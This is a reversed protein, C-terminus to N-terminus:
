LTLTAVPRQSLNEALTRIGAAYRSDPQLLVLPKGANLAMLCGEGSSPVIGAVECRLRDRLDRPRLCNALAARNVVVLGVSAPNVGWQELLTLAMQAYEACLPDPELVLAIFDSVELIGRHAEEVHSSLDVLTLEALETFTDLLRETQQLQGAQGVAGTGFLVQFGFPLMTLKKELIRSDLNETGMGLLEALGATRSRKLQLAFGWSPLMEAAIVKRGQQGLAAAANLVTTTTGVGGKVGFFTIVRGLQGQRRTTALLRRIHRHREVTHRVCRLLAAPSLRGKVLYDEAGLRVVRLGLQPNEVTGLAVVPIGGAQRLLKELAPEGQVGGLSLSYLVVDLDGQALRGLGDELRDAVELRFNGEQGLFAQKATELCAADDDILLVVTRENPM